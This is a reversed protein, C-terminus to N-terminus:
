IDPNDDGFFFGYNSLKCEQELNGQQMEEMGTNARRIRGLFGNAVKASLFVM